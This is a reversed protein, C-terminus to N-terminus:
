DPNQRGQWGSNIKPLCTLSCKLLCFFFFLLYSPFSLMPGSNGITDLLLKLFSGGQNLSVSVWTKWLPCAWWGPGASGIGHKTAKGKVRSWGHQSDGAVDVVYSKQIRGITCGFNSHPPLPKPNCISQAWYILDGSDSIINEPDRWQGAALSMHPIIRM